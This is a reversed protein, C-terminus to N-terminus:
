TIDEFRVIAGHNVSQVPKHNNHLLVRDKLAQSSLSEWLCGGADQDRCSAHWVKRCAEEQLHQSFSAGVKDKDCTGGEVNM